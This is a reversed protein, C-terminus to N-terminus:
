QCRLHVNAFWAPWKSNFHQLQLLLSKNVSPIAAALFHETHSMANIMTCCAWSTLFHHGVSAQMKM